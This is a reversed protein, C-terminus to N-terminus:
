NVGWGPVVAAGEHSQLGRGALLAAAGCSGAEPLQEAGLAGASPLAM